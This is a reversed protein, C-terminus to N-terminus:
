VAEPVSEVSTYVPMGRHRAFLREMDAGKSPGLYLVADCMELWALDYLMWEEYSIKIGGARARKDAMAFIHPVFPRHGKKMLSIGADIANMCNVDQAADTEASLPGAVYIRMVEIRRM